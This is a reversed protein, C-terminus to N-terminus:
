SFLKSLMEREEGSLVPSINHNLKQNIEGQLSKLQNATLESIKQKLENFQKSTMAEGEHYGTKEM